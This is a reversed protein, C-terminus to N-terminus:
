LIAMGFLKQHNGVIAQMGLVLECLFVCCVVYLRINLYFLVFNLEFLCFNLVQTSGYFNELITTSNNPPRNCRRM